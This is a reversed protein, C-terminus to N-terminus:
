NEKKRITIIFECDDSPQERIDRINIYNSYAILTDHIRHELDKYYQSDPNKPKGYRVMTALKAMARDFDIEYPKLKKM